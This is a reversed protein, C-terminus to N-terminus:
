TRYRSRNMPGTSAFGGSVAAGIAVGVSMGTEDSRTAGIAGAM